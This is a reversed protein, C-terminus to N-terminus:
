YKILYIVNIDNFQIQTSNVKRYLDVYITKKGMM